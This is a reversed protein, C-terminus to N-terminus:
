VSQYGHLARSSNPYQKLWPPRAPGLRLSSIGGEATVRRPPSPKGTTSRRVGSSYASRSRWNRKLTRHAFNEHLLGTPTM